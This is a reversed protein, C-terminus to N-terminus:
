AVRRYAIADENSLAAQTIDGGTRMTLPFVQWDTNIIDKANMDPTMKMFGAYPITGGFQHRATASDYKRFVGPFIPTRNTADNYADRILRAYFSGNSYGPDNTGVFMGHYPTYQSSRVAQFDAAASTNGIRIASTRSSNQDSSDNFIRSDYSTYISDFNAGTKSAYAGGSVYEGGEWGGVKTIAGFSFHNFIGTAAELVAHVCTGDTFFYHGVFPGTFAWTNMETYFTQFGAGPSDISGAAPLASYSMKSSFGNGATYKVFFWHVGGKSVRRVTRSGTGSSSTVTGLNTFGANAVAFSIMQDIFDEIDSATGTAYAM